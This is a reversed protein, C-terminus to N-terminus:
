KVEEITIGTDKLFLQFGNAFSYKDKNICEGLLYITDKIGCIIWRNQETLGEKRYASVERNIKEAFRQEWGRKKKVSM